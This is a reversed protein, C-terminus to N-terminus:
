AAVAFFCGEHLRGVDYKMGSLVPAAEHLLDHRFVLASGARPQVECLLEYRSRDLSRKVHSESTPPATCLFRLRVPFSQCAAITECSLVVSM